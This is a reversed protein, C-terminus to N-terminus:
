MILLLQLLHLIVPITVPYTFVTGNVSPTGIIVLDDTDNTCEFTISNLDIGSINDSTTINVTYAHGENV